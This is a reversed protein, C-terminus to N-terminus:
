LRRANTTATEKVELATFLDDSAKSDGGGQSVDLGRVTINLKRREIDPMQDVAENGFEDADTVTSSACIKINCNKELQEVKEKKQRILKERPLSIFQLFKVLSPDSVNCFRLFQKKLSRIKQYLEDELVIGDCTM